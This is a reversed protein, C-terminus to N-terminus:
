NRIELANKKEFDDSQRKSKSTQRRSSSECPSKRSPAIIAQPTNGVVPAASSARANVTTAFGQLMDTTENQITKEVETKRKERLEEALILVFLVNASSIM